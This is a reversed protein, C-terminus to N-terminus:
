KEVVRMHDRGGHSSRGRNSSLVAQAAIQKRYGLQTVRHNETQRMAAFRHPPLPLYQAQTRM